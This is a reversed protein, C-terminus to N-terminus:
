KLNFKIHLNFKIIKNKKSIEYGSALRGDYLKALFTVQNGAYLKKLIIPVGNNIFWTYITGNLSSSAFSNNSLAAFSTIKSNSPQTINYNSRNSVSFIMISGDVQGTLVYTGTFGLASIGGRNMVNEMKTFSNNLDLSLELVELNSNNLGVFLYSSSALVSLISSNMERVQIMGCTSSNWFTIKKDLSGSVIMNIYPIETIATINGTM